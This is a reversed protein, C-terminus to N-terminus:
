KPTLAHLPTLFVFCAGDLGDDELGKGYKNTRSGGKSWGLKKELYVIYADEEEEQATRPLANPLTKSQRTSSKSGASREALKELATKPKKKVGVTFGEKIGTQVTPPQSM